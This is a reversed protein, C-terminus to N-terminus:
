GVWAQLQQEDLSLLATVEQNMTKSLSLHLPKLRDLDWEFGDRISREPPHSPMGFYGLKM